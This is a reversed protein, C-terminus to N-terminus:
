SHATKLILEFKKLAQIIIHLVTITLSLTSSVSEGVAGLINILFIKAGLVSQFRICLNVKQTVNYAYGISLSHFMGTM